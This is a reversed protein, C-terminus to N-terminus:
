GAPLSYFVRRPCHTVTQALGRVQWAITALFQGLIFGRRQAHVAPGPGTRAILVQINQVACTLLEQIQEVEPLIALWEGCAVTAVRVAVDLSDM